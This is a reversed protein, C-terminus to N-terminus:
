SNTESFTPNYHNYKNRLLIIYVYYLMLFRSLPTNILFDGKYNAYLATIIWLIAVKYDIRKLKSFLYLLFVIIIFIYVIGGFNLRVIYGIDSGDSETSLIRGSGILWEDISQPFIIMTDLLAEANEVKEGSLLSSFIDFFTLSWEYTKNLAENKDIFDILLASFISVFVAVIISIKVVRGPRLLSLIIIATIIPIFGSRANPIIACLMLLCGSYYIWKNKYTGVGGIIILGIAFGEVIPYSFLLGDSIGFGRWPFNKQAIEPYKFYETKLLTAIDPNLLLFLSIAGAIICIYLANKNIDLHYKKYFFDTLAYPVIMLELTFVLDYSLFMLSSFSHIVTVFFCYLCIIGCFILETQFQHLLNKGKSKSFLYLISWILVVKDLGIPLFKFPPAFIYAYLIIILISSLVYSYIRDNKM